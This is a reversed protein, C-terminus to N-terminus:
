FYSEYIARYGFKISIIYVYRKDLKVYLEAELLKAKEMHARMLSLNVKMSHKCEISEVIGIENNRSSLKM